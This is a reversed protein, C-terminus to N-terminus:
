RGFQGIVGSVLLIQGLHYFVINLTGGNKISSVFRNWALILDSMYFLLAGAAVLLSANTKWNIDLLTVLAAYLMMSIIISYLIVPIVLQTQGKERMSLVLRRVIFIASIGLIVAFLFSWTSLSVFEGKFGIIYSIHTLLFAILGYIFM